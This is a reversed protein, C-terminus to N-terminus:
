ILTYVAVAATAVAGMATRMGSLFELATPTATPASYTTATGDFKEFSEATATLSVTKGSALAFTTDSPFVGVYMYPRGVFDTTDDHDLNIFPKIVGPM